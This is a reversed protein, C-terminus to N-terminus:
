SDIFLPSTGLNKSAAAGVSRSLGLLPRGQVLEPEPTAFLKSWDQRQQRAGRQRRSGAKKTWGFAPKGETSGFATPTAASISSDGDSYSASRELRNTSQTVGGRVATSRLPTPPSAYFAATHTACFLCVLALVLRQRTSIMNPPPHQQEPLLQYVHAIPRHSPQSFSELEATAGAAELKGKLEEAEEKKLDDKVVQPLSEVMEKAERLGLGTIARVEKIVKIKAKDGFGTVKLKFVTNDGAAAPADGDGDGGSDGDGDVGGYSLTPVEDLGLKNKFVDILMAMEVFNLDDIAAMVELVKPSPETVISPDLPPPPGPDGDDAQIGELPNEELPPPAEGEGAGDKPEEEGGGREGEKDAGAEAPAGSDDSTAHVDAGASASFMMSPQGQGQGRGALSREPRHLPWLTSAGAKISPPAALAMSPRAYGRATSSGLARRSSSSSSSSNSGDLGRQVLPWVASAPTRCRRGAGVLGRSVSTAMTM